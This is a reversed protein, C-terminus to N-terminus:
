AHDVGMLVIKLEKLAPITKYTLFPSLVEHQTSVLCVDLRIQKTNHIYTIIYIAKTKFYKQM